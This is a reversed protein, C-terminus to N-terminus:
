GVFTTTGINERELRLAPAYWRTFSEDKTMVIVQRERAVEGLLAATAELRGDDFHVCPDDFIIPLHPGGSLADVLGIRIALYVQDQTGRSLLDVNISPSGNCGVTPTMNQQDINVVQYRGGTIGRVLAGAQVAVPELAHEQFDAVCSRMSALALELAAALQEKRQLEARRDRILVNLAAANDSATRQLVGRQVKIDSLKRGSKEEAAMLRSLRSQLEAVREPTLEVIEPHENELQERQRRLIAVETLADDLERQRTETEAPDTNALESLRARVEAYRNLRRILQDLNAEGSQNLWGACRAEIEERRRQAQYLDDRLRYLQQEAFQRRIEGDSTTAAPLGRSPRLAVVAITIAVLLGAFFVPSVSAGLTISFLAIAGALVLLGTWPRQKASDSQALPQSTMAAQRTDVEVEAIAQEIKAQEDQAYIREAALRQIAGSEPDGPVRLGAGESELGARREFADSAARLDRRLRSIQETKRTEEEKLRLNRGYQDLLAGYNERRQRTNRVEDAIARESEDVDVAEAEFRAADVARRELDAIEANLQEIERDIRKGPQRKLRNLDKELDAIASEYSAERSGSILRKIQASRQSLQRDALQDQAIFVVSRFLDLDTFGFWGGLLRQYREDEQTHHTSLGRGRYIQEGDQIVTVESKAFQRTIEIDHDDVKLRLDGRLAPEGSWPAFREWSSLGFITGMLGTLLQSKGSENPGIILTPTRDRFSVFTDRHQAFGCLRFDLLKM